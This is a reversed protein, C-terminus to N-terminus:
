HFDKLYARLEAFAAKKWNNVSKQCAGITDAIERETYGQSYLLVILQERDSLRDIAAHLAESLEMDEFLSEVTSTDQPLNGVEIMQDLSLPAGDRQKDCKRCNKRCRVGKVNQCRSKRDLWKLDNWYLRKVEQSMIVGEKLWSHFLNQLEKYDQYTSM